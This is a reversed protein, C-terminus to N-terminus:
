EIDDTITVSPFLPHFGCDRTIDLTHTEGVIDAANEWATLTDAIDFSLSLVHSEDGSAITFSDNTMRFDTGGSDDRTSITVPDKYSWTAHEASCSRRESESPCLAPDTACDACWYDDNSFADLLTSSPRGADTFTITEDGYNIWGWKGDAESYVLIDRALIGLEDDDNFYIRLPYNALDPSLYPVIMPVTMQVYYIATEIGDFTGRAAEPITDNLECITTTTEGITVADAEAESATAHTCDPIEYYDDGGEKLLRVYRTAIKLSDDLPTLNISYGGGSDDPCDSPFGAAKLLLPEITLPASPSAIVGQISIGASTAGGGSGSSCGALLVVGFLIPVVRGM